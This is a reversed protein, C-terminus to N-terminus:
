ARRFAALAAAVEEETAIEGRDLSALGEDIAVLEEPTPHYTGGHEAEIARGLDALRDQDEAPWTAARDILEKLRSTMIGMM